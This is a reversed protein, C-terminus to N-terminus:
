VAVVQLVGRGKPRQRLHRLAIRQHEAADLAHVARRRVRVDADAESRGNVSQVYDIRASGSQSHLGIAAAAGDSRKSAISIELNIRIADHAAPENNFFVAVDTNPCGLWRHREFHFGIRVNVKEIGLRQGDMSVGNLVGAIETKNLCQNEDAM